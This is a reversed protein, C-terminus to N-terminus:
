SAKARPRRRARSRFWPTVVAAIVKAAEDTSRMGARVSQFFQPHIVARLVAVAEEDGALGGLATRMLDDWRAGFEAGKEIWPGTLMPERLWMSYLQIAEDIFRGGARIVRELRDDISRAGDFISVDPLAVGATLREVIAIDLDDRTPFHNRLTGPAVDARRGIERMTAASIGVELYLEVAVEVIRDRTAQYQSAREGLRYPRPM